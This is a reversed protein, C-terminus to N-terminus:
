GAFNYNSLSLLTSIERLVHLATDKSDALLSVIDVYVVNSEEHQSSSYQMASLFSALSPLEVDVPKSEKLVLYQFISNQWQVCCSYEEPFVPLSHISFQSINPRQYQVYYHMNAFVDVAIERGGAIQTRTHPYSLERLTRRKEVQKPAPSMTLSSGSHKEHTLSSCEEEKIKCVFVQCWVHMIYMYRKKQFLLAKLCQSFVNFQHEMGVERLTQALCWPM